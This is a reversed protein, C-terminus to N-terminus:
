WCPACWCHFADCAHRRGPPCWRGWGNCAAKHIITATQAQANIGAAGPAATQAQVSLATAGVVFVAAVFTLTIKRM